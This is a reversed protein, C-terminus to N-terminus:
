KKKRLDNLMMRTIADLADVAEQKGSAADAIVKDLVASMTSDVLNMANNHVAEESMCALKVMKEFDEKTFDCKVHLEHLLTTTETMIEPKIGAIKYEHKKMNGYIM